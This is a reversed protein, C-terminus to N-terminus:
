TAIKRVVNSGFQDWCGSMLSNIERKEWHSMAFCYIGFRGSLAIHHLVKDGFNLTFRFTM